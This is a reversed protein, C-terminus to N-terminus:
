AAARGPFRNDADGRSAEIEIFSAALGHIKRFPTREAEVTNYGSMSMGMREAMQPQTLGLRYRLRRMEVATTIM